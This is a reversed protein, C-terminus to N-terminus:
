GLLERLATALNGAAEPAYGLYLYPETLELEILAPTGDALRVLDVRAYLLDEPFTALLQEALDFQDAAPTRREARANDALTMGPALMPNRRVAHSFRRNFYLLSTEGESEVMNLYPQIMPARGEAAALMEAHAIAVARDATRITDLAGASVTPKVVYEDWEPFDAASWYTPVTPVGMDRLYTKDTNRAITAAPNLLRTRSEAARTWALFEARRPVYDWVSRLVAADFESWDAEPDDWLVARGEIGVARWADLAVEIEDDHEAGQSFTVYACNMM